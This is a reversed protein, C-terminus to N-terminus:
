AQHAAPDPGLWVALGAAIAEIAAPGAALARGLLAGAAERQWRYYARRTELYRCHREDFRLEALVWGGPEWDLLWLTSGQQWHFPRPPAPAQPSFLAPSGPQAGARATLWAGHKPHPGFWHEDPPHQEKM